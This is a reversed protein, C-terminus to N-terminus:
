QKALSKMFLPVYPLYHPGNLYISWTSRRYRVVRAPLVHVKRHSMDYPMLTRDEGVLFILNWELHVAIVRYDANAAEFGLWINNLGFLQLTNVTHKLTWKSTGYDELIWISLDSRNFIDAICVCLQGQDGDIFMAPGPPSLIKRWTKGEM